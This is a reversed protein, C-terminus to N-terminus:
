SQFLNLNDFDSMRLNREDLLFFGGPLIELEGWEVPSLKDGGMEKCYKSFGQM